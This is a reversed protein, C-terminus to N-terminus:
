QINKSDNRCETAARTSCVVGLYVKGKSEEKKDVCKFGEQIWYVSLAPFLLALGVFTFHCIEPLPSLEPM